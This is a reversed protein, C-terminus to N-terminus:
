NNCCKRIDLVVDGLLWAALVKKCVITNGKVSYTINVYRNGIGLVRLPFAWFSKGIILGAIYFLLIPFYLLKFMSLIETLKDTLKLKNIAKVRLVILPDLIFKSFIFSTVFSLSISSIIVFSLSFITIILIGNLSNVSISLNSLNNFIGNFEHVLHVFLFIALFLIYVLILLFGGLLSSEDISLKLEKDKLYERTKKLRKRIFLLGWINVLVLYSISSLLFLVKKVLSIINGTKGLFELILFLIFFSCVVLIWLLISKFKPRLM